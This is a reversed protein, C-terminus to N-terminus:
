GRNVIFISLASYDENLFEIPNGENIREDEYSLNEGIIVKCKVEAEALIRSLVAPKNEEM